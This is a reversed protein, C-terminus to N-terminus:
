WSGDFNGARFEGKGKVLIVCNPTERSIAELETYSYNDQYISIIVENLSLKRLLENLGSQDISTGHIELEEISQIKILYEIADNTLQPNEKLRLIKLKPLTILEKLADNTIETEQLNLNELKQMNKLLALDADKYCTNALSLYRLDELKSLVSFDTIEQDPSYVSLSETDRNIRM